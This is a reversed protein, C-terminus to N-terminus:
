LNSLPSLIISVTIHLVLYSVVVAMALRGVRSKEKVRWIDILRSFGLGLAICVAGITPYFYYVFSIRDTLVSLPIWVLYTGVLWAISFLAANSHRIARFVMYLMVPVILAWVTFSIAATYHPEYWYPMMLPRMIWDWPRSLYPYDTNSFTLTSSLSTMTQISSIPDVLRGSVMFDFLPLLLLVSVPVLFMSSIFHWPRSRGSILWHLVVALLALVGTLKVLISLGVSVAALPFDGRLYLWFTLLMLTVSYVDLMAVSAQVFTLNELVLLFVALFTGTRPMALRRCILYFLVIGLAGFVVSPFRWGVPNDGFVLIGSAILLKGLPPHEPRSTGNGELISKADPVYYKEDFMPEDPRTIVAFHMALVVLLLLCLWIHEWKGLRRLRPAIEM